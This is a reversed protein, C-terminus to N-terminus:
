HTCYVHSALVQTKNLLLCGVKKPPKHKTKRQIKNAKKPKILNKINHKM